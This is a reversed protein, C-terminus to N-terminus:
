NAFMRCSFAGSGASHTASRVELFARGRGVLVFEDPVAMDRRGTVVAPQASSEAWRGTADDYLWWVLTGTSITAGSPASVVARVGKGGALSVGDTALSPINATSNYAPSYSGLDQLYALGVQGLSLDVDPADLILLKCLGTLASAAGRFVECRQFPTKLMTGPLVDVRQGDLSLTLQAGAANGVAPFIVGWGKGAPVGLTTSIVSLDVSFGHFGVGRGESLVQAHAM